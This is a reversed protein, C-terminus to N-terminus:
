QFIIVASCLFKQTEISHSKGFLAQFLNDLQHLYMQHSNSNIKSDNFAIVKEM